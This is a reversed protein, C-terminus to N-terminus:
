YTPQTSSLSFGVMYGGTGIAPLASCQYTLSVVNAAGTADYLTVTITQTPMAGTNVISHLHLAVGDVTIAGPIFNASTQDSTSLNTSATNSSILATTDGVGWTAAATFNGNAAAIRAAM